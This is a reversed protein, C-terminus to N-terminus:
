GRRGYLFPRGQYVNRVGVPLTVRTQETILEDFDGLELYGAARFAAEAAGRDSYEVSVTRDGTLLTIGFRDPWRGASEDNPNRARGPNLKASLIRGQVLLGDSYGTAPSSGLEDHMTETAM